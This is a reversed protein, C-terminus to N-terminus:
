VWPQLTSLQACLSHCVPDTDPHVSHNITRAKLTLSWCLVMTSHREARRAACYCYWLRNKEEWALGLITARWLWHGESHWAVDRSELPFPRINVTSEYLARRKCKSRASNFIMTFTFRLYGGLCHGLLNYYHSIAAWITSFALHQSLYVHWNWVETLLLAFKVYWKVIVRLCNMKGGILFNWIKNPTDYILCHKQYQESAVDCLTPWLVWTHSIFRMMATTSM